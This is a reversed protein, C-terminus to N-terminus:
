SNSNILEKETEEKIKEKEVGDRIFYLLSDLRDSDKIKCIIRCIEKQVASYKEINLWRKKDVYLDYPNVNKYEAIKKIGDFKSFRGKLWAIVTLRKCQDKDGPYKKKIEEHMRDLKIGFAQSAKKQGVKIHKYYELLEALNQSLPNDGIQM